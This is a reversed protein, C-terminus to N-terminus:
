VALKCDNYECIMNKLTNERGRSGSAKTNGHLVVSNQQKQGTGKLDGGRSDKLGLLRSIGM